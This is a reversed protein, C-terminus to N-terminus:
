PRSQLIKEVKEELEDTDIPKVCYESAGLQLSAQATEITPYGTLMMVQIQPQIKKLEALVEVGTMRKLRIDLIALDVENKRIFDLAEDEDTFAKVQHGNEVLIRKTLHAADVVDDLVLIKAM